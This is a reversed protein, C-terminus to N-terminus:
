QEIKNDTKKKKGTSDEIVNQTVKRSCQTLIRNMKDDEFRNVTGENRLIM